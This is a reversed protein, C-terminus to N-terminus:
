YGSTDTTANDFPSYVLYIFWLRGRGTLVDYELTIVVNDSHWEVQKQKREAVPLAGYNQEIWQLLKERNKRDQYWMQINGLREKYFRYHVPSLTVGNLTVTEGPNEYVQVHPLPNATADDPLPKLAPYESKSTGWTYGNFGKPENTIRGASLPEPMGICALLGLVLVVAWRRTKSAAVGSM